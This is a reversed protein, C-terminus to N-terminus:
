DWNDTEIAIFKRQIRVMRREVAKIKERLSVLQMTEVGECREQEAIMATELWSIASRCHDLREECRALAPQKALMVM